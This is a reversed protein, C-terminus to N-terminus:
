LGGVSLQSLVTESNLLPPLWVFSKPNCPDSPANKAVILDFVSQRFLSGVGVKRENKQRSQWGALTMSWAKMPQPSKASVEIMEEAGVTKWSLAQTAERMAEDDDSSHIGSAVDTECVPLSLYSLPLTHENDNRHGESAAAGSDVMSLEFRHIDGIPFARPQSEFRASLKAPSASKSVDDLYFHQPQQSLPIEEMSPKRNISADVDGMASSPTRFPTGTQPLMASPESCRPANANSPYRSTTRPTIVADAFKASRITRISLAGGSFDRSTSRDESSLEFGRQPDPRLKLSIAADGFLNRNRSESRADDICDDDDSSSTRDFQSRQGLPLQKRLLFMDAESPRVQSTSFDERQVSSLNNIDNGQCQVEINQSPKEACFLRRKCGYGSLDDIDSKQERRNRKSTKVGIPSVSQMPKQPTGRIPEVHFRLFCTDDDVIRLDYSPPKSHHIIEFIKVREPQKCAAHIMVTNRHITIVQKSLTPVNRRLALCYRKCPISRPLHARCGNPCGKWWTTALERRGLPLQAVVDFSESTSMTKGDRLYVPTLRVSPM